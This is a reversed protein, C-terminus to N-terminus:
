YLELLIHHGLNNLNTDECVPHFLKHFQADLYKSIQLILPEFSLIKILHIFFGIYKLPIVNTTSNSNRFISISPLSSM